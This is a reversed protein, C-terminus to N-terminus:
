AADDTATDDGKDKGTAHLTMPIPRRRPLQVEVKLDRPIDPSGYVRVAPEGNWETPFLVIRKGIWDALVRGFMERICIGNTKNLALQKDTGRFTIIGKVKEGGENSPLKETDISAVTLTVKKGKLEGAKLFRGPFLEDWDVPKKRAPENM